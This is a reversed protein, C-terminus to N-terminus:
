EATRDEGTSRLSTHHCVFLNVVPDLPEDVLLVLEVRLDALAPEARVLVVPELLDLHAEVLAPVQEPLATREALGPLFRVCRLHAARLGDLAVLLLPQGALPRAAALVM